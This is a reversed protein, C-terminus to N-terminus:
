AHITSNIATQSETLYMRFLSQERLAGVNHTYKMGQFDAIFANARTNCGKYLGVIDDIEYFTYM